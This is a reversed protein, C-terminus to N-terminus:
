LRNNKPFFQTLPSLMWTLVADSLGFMYLFGFICTLISLLKFFFYTMGAGMWKEVFGLNGTIGVLRYNYKMTVIGIGLLLAGALFHEFIM